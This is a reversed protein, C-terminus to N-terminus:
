RRAGGAGPASGRPGRRRCSPSSRRRTRRRSGRRATPTSRAGGSRPPADSADHSGRRPVTLPTSTRVEVSPSSHRRARHARRLSAASPGPPADRESGTPPPPVVRPVRGAHDVSRTVREGRDVSAGRRRSCGAPASSSGARGGDGTASRGSQRRRGPTIPRRDGAGGRRGHRLQGDGRPGNPGLLRRPGGPPWEAPLDLDAQGFLRPESPGPMSTWKSRSASTWKALAGLDVQVSFGVDVQGSRRPGSPGLLRRGSPRRTSTWKSRPASTWTASSGLDVQDRPRPGSPRLM